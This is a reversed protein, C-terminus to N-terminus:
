QRRWTPEFSDRLVRDIELGHGLLFNDQGHPASFLVSTPLGKSDRGNPIALGCFGLFNGIMTNRLVNLNVKHFLDMDAELPAIEPATVPTTPMALLAGELTKAISTMTSKRANQIHLLDNASMRGGQKIRHVVREDIKSSEEADVLAHYEHYSEAAALSGHKATLLAVEDIQPINRRKIRVGALELLRISQEFNELVAPECFDLVYNEPVIITLKALDLRMADAAVAGRLVMDLLICDEVSRALPGITDLTRSLPVLGEKDIRGESTKYGYVGNFSAPIRVSGGTDTGIACPSLGSAVVAGSGSSSGGPSRHVKDDNPNLPTGFHPNLGLGSYAFETMNLKGLCVMGAAAANAVCKLDREKAVSDRYILSAATTPAGAIDFLDKWAIPVGDLASLPRGRAYRETAARAENRAREATVTIFIKTNSSKEIRELLHEILTVPDAELDRFALGIESATRRAIERIDAVTM